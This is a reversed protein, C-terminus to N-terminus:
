VLATGEIEAIEVNKTLIDACQFTYSKGRTEIQFVNSYIGKIKAKQNIIRVKPRKIFMSIHITSDAQFLKQIKQKIKNVTIM